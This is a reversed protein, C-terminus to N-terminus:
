DISLKEHEPRTPTVSGRMRLGVLVSTATLAVLATGLAGFAIGPVTHPLALWTVLVFAV